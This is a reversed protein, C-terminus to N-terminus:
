TGSDDIQLRGALSAWEDVVFSAEPATYSVMLYRGGDFVRGAVVSRQGDRVFDVEQMEVQLGSTTPFTATSLTAGLAVPDAAILGAIGNLTAVADDPGAMATDEGQYSTFWAAQDARTLENVGAEDFTTLEWGDAEAPFAWYGIGAGTISYPEALSVVGDGGDVGTAPEEAEPTESSTATESETPEASTPEAVPTASAAADVTAIVLPIVVSAVVISGIIALVNVALGVWGVVRSAGAKGAKVLSAIALPLGILWMLLVGLVISVIGMAQGARPDAPQQGAWGPGQGYPTGPQQGYGIGQGYAPAQGYAPPQGYSPGGPQGFAPGQGFAPPQGYAPPQQGYAPPQQGSSAAPPQGYPGPPPGGPSGPPPVDNSM